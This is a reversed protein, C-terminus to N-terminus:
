PAPPLFCPGKYLGYTPISPDGPGFGAWYQRGLPCQIDSPAGLLPETRELHQCTRQTGEATVQESWLSALCNTGTACMECCNYEGTAEQVAYLYSGIPIETTAQKYRTLCLPQLTATASATTTSTTVSRTTASSETVTFSQVETSISVVEVNTKTSTVPDTCITTTSTQLNTVTRTVPNQLLCRCANVLRPRPVQGIWIENRIRLECVPGANADREKRKAMQATTTTTSTTTFVDTVTTTTTSVTSTTRTDLETTTSLIGTVTQTVRTFEVPTVTDAVVIQGTVTTTSPSIGLFDMCWDKAQDLVTDFCRIPISRAGSIFSLAANVSCEGPRLGTSKKKGGHGGKGKGQLEAATAGVAGLAALFVSPRM